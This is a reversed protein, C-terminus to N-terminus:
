RLWGMAWALALPALMLLSLATIYTRAHDRDANM